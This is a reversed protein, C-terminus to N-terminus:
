HRHHRSDQSKSKRKKRLRCLWDLAKYFDRGTARQYRLAKDLPDQFKAHIQLEEGNGHGSSEAGKRAQNDSSKKASMNLETCDWTPDLHISGIGDSM